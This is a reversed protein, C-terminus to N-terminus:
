KTEKGEVLSVDDYYVVSGSGWSRLMIRAYAINAPTTFTCSIKTWKDSPQLDRGVGFNTPHWPGEYVEQFVVQLDATDAKKTKAYVSVTYETLPKIPITVIVGVVIVKNDSYKVRLCQRGSHTDETVIGSLNDERGWGDPCGDEDVDKEFGPNPLLNDALGARADSISIVMAFGMLLIVRMFKLIYKKRTSM